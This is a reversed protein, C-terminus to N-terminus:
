VDTWSTVCPIGEHPFPPSLNDAITVLTGTLESDLSPVLSTGNGLNAMSERVESCKCM